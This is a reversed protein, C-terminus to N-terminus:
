FEALAFNLEDLNFIGVENGSEDVLLASDFKSDDILGNRVSTLKYFEVNSLEIFQQDLLNKAEAGRSSCVLKYNVTANPFRVRESDANCDAGEGYTMLFQGPKCLVSEVLIEWNFQYWDNLIDREIFSDLHDNLSVGSRVIETNNSLFESFTRIVNNISKM